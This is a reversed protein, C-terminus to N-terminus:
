HHGHHSAGAPPPTASPPRQAGSVEAPPPTPEELDDTEFVHLMMIGMAGPDAEAADYVTELDLTDGARVVGLADWRCYSMSEITGMYAPKQGYGAWSTCVHRQATANTLTTRVGGTHVHGGASVIRGTITSKWTWHESSPGAPVTYESTRCNNMDVWVPTVPKVGATSAPLWRVKFTFSVTKTEASHNMIHFVGTVSERGLHYGYGDPFHKTTRENGSALFREGLGGLFTDKGCTTDSRGTNFLLAHHLMLGTDLNAPTGDEYVLDPEARVIYCDECPKPVNPLFVNAHDVDGGQGAPPLVFPGYRVTTEQLGGVTDAAVSDFVLGPLLLAVGALSMGLVSGLRKMM